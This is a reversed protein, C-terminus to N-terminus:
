IGINAMELVICIINFVSVETMTLGGNMFAQFQLVWSVLRNTMTSLCPTVNQFGGQRSNHAANSHCLPHNCCNLALISMNTVIPM